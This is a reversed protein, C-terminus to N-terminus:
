ASAEQSQQWRYTGCIRPRSLYEDLAKAVAEEDEHCKKVVADADEKVKGIAYEIDETLRTNVLM